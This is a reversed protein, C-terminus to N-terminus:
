KPRPKQSPCIIVECKMDELGEARIIFAPSFSQSDFQLNGICIPGGGVQGTFVEVPLGSEPTKADYSIAGMGRESKFFAFGNNWRYFERRGDYNCKEKLTEFTIVGKHPPRYIYFQKSLEECEAMHTSEPFMEIFAVYLYHMHRIKVDRYVEDETKNKYLHDSAWEKVAKRYKDDAVDSLVIKPCDNTEVTTQVKPEAKPTPKSEGTQAARGCGALFLIALFTTSFLKM